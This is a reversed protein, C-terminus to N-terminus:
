QTQRRLVALGYALRSKVTGLPIELIAAVDALRLEEQFHLILVARSAPSVSNMDVLRLADAAIPADVAAIEELPASTIEQEWLKQKKLRRFAVRSAIRFAWPRFVEPNELGGLKRYLLILVDQLADDAHDAGVITRLYGHLSPQV